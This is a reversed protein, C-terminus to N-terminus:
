KASEVLVKLDSLGKEFQQGVMKNCNMVLSMAKGIFTQPGYMSWTVVTQDGESRLSFDATSVGKFPKFFELKTRVLENPQTETITMRGEGVQNNGAWSSIAGTGAAPGEYTQKMAPDLKMWPSWANMKRPDELHPFIAAAPASVSISREIRFTDPQRSIVFALVAVVILLGIFIKKFM